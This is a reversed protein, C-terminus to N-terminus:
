INYSFIEEDSVIMGEGAIELTKVDILKLSGTIRNDGYDDYKLPKSTKITIHAIDNVLIDRANYDSELNDFNVKYRIDTITADTEDTTHQIKFKDGIELPKEDLWHVHLSISSSYKPYNKNIRVLMDGQKLDTFGDLQFTVTQLTLAVAISSPGNFIAKITSLKNYPLALVVDGAKFEGGSVQGSIGKYASGGGNTKENVDKVPFRPAILYNDKNVPLEKILNLLTKDKYWSINLSNNILNESYKASIPIYRLNKINLKIAIEEFESQITNFVTEPFDVLDIKNIAIVLNQIKVLSALFSYKRSERTIGKLADILLITVEKGAFLAEDFHVKYDLSLRQRLTEKGSGDNGLINIFPHDCDKFSNESQNPDEPLEPISPINLGLTNNQLSM